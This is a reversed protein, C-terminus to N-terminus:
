CQSQMRRHGTALTGKQRRLPNVGTFELPGLENGMLHKLNIVVNAFSPREATNTAWCRSMLESIPGPCNDLPAPRGGQALTELLGPLDLGVWPEEGAWLAWMILAFSFVDAKDDYDMSSIVEPAMYAPSGVAQTMGNTDDSCYRSLGFDGIKVHVPNM